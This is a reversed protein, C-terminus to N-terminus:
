EIGLPVLEFRAVDVLGRDTIKLEPIVSLALFSLTMFPAAISAGMGALRREMSSLREHVQALPQDSMLGAVPLPLEEIVHGGEAVVIGGGIEALRCACAAMDADDVGLVVVNHADHAVTSAFAGRQLGINTAFGLGARGSAHHRELVAIKVLDRAPDAVISGDRVSPEAVVSRTLLQGPVVGIVRIQRPGAPIHFSSATVPALYVTQRVWEPVTLKVFHPPAGRKLVERPTFSRLDDLVLIDAQYGPAIAGLHWLRHYTASNITAMVVADEPSIGEAVAVRVMQNIHGEEVIFGPERDDTCFMCYDSGYQKVVPLLDRLNRAISAERLMVWMGLRRKELAEEATTAEHDSRIGAAIYANLASGRVGPAHGDVHDTLGTTLKAVESEDGAIVGPFNMMEAIGITRHRRLLSEIDGTTFPRRPSEFRSAPVCSSAMVYVDLPLDTCCDLLWHIGDTGLVNAIEHPDAVVATTGHALVARAFEDVMLKSSEIHMHADIFGPVLFAGSVDRRERGGEYRGLGVVHGDKIAVDVDLWEKTFVSLVKGGALVLDAPEDGRAVAM